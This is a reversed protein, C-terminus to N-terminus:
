VAQIPAPEERAIVLESQVIYPSAEPVRRQESQTLKSCIARFTGSFMSTFFGAMIKQEMTLEEAKEVDKGDSRYESIGTAICHM